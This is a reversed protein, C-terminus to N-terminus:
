GIGIIQDVNFSTAGGGILFLTSATAGPPTYLGVANAIDSGSPCQYTVNQQGPAALLGVANAPCFIGTLGTSDVLQGAGGINVARQDYRITATQNVADKAGSIPDPGTSWGTALANANDGMPLGNPPVAQGDNASVAPPTQAGPADDCERAPNAPNNNPNAQTGSCDVYAAVLFESVLEGGGGFSIRVDLGGNLTASSTGNLIAGNAAVAHFRAPVVSGGAVAEDFVFDVQNTAGSPDTLETSTLDPDNSTAGGGNVVVVSLTRNGVVAPPTSVVGREPGGVNTDTVWARRAQEVPSTAPPFQILVNGNGTQDGNTTNICGQFTGDNHIFGQNDYYAFAPAASGIANDCVNAGDIAGVGTASPIIRQDFRYGIQNPGVNAAAIQLDPGAQHGRTGNRVLSGALPVSDAINTNAGVLTKVVNPLIHFYTAAQLDTTSAGTFSWQAKICRESTITPATGPQNAPIELNAPYGGVRYNAAIAGGSLDIAQDFCAEVENFTPLITATRLDPLNTTVQNGTGISAQAGSAGLIPVGLAVLGVVLRTAFRARRPFSFM